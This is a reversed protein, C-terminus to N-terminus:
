KFRTSLIIIQPSRKKVPGEAPIPDNPVAQEMSVGDLGEILAMNWQGKRDGLPLASGAQQANKM